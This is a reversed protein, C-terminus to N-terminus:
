LINTNKKSNENEVEELFGAKHLDLVIRKRDSCLANYRKGYRIRAIEEIEEIFELELIDM